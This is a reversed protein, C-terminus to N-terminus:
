QPIKLPLVMSGRLEAGLLEIDGTAPWKVAGLVNAAFDQLSPIKDYDQETIFKSLTIGLASLGSLALTVGATALFANSSLFGKLTGSTGSLVADAAVASESIAIGTAETGAEAAAEAITESTIVVAAASASETAVKAGTALCKAVAGAGLALSALVSVADLIIDLISIWKEVQVSSTITANGLDTNDPIFVYQGDSERKVSKYAINQSLNMYVNIGPSSSYHASTIEINIHNKNIGMSFNGKPIVPSIIGSDTEFDNWTIDNKNRITLGDTINFDSEKSGKIVKIAGQLLIHKVVKENSIVYASNAGPPLGDLCNVDVQQSQKPPIKDGDVMYLTAFVQDEPKGSITKGVAYSFATPKMWAFDDKAAVGDLMVISFIYNFKDLNANFYDLFAANLLSQDGTGISEPYQYHKLTVVQDTGADKPTKVKLVYAKGQSKATKDTFACSADEQTFLPVEIIFATGKLSSEDNICISYTGDQLECTMWVNSGEGGVCLQWPKWTGSMSVTWAIGKDSGKLAFLREAEAKVAPDLQLSNFEV